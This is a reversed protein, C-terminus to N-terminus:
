AQEGVKVPSGGRGRAKEEHPVSELYENVRTAEGETLM